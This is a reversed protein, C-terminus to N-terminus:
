VRRRGAGGDDLPRPRWGKLTSILPEFGRPPVGATTRLLTPGASDLRDDGVEPGAGRGARGRDSLTGGPADGLGRRDGRPAGPHARPLFRLRRDTAMLSSGSPLARRTGSPRTPRM